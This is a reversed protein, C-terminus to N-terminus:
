RHARIEPLCIAAKDFNTFYSEHTAGSLRGSLDYVWGHYPCSFYKTNGSNWAVQVGRHRCVNAIAQINCNKEKVIVVPENAIRHTFYDGPNEVEEARGVLLWQKMFIEEIERPMIEESFYVEGAKHTKNVEPADKVVSHGFESPDYSISATSDKLNAAM